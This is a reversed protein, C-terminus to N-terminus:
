DLDLAIRLALDLRRLDAPGLSGRHHLLRRKHVTQIFDCNAASEHGLGHAKDLVIEAPHGRLNSTIPVTTVSSLVPIARERTIVVVPRVGLGPIDADFVDGRHIL